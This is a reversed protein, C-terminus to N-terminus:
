IVGFFCCKKKKLKDNKVEENTDIQNENPQVKDNENKQHNKQKLNDVFRVFRDNIYIANQVNGTLLSKITFNGNRGNKTWEGEFIKGNEILKGIGFRRFNKVGGEYVAGGESTIVCPSLLKGKDWIGEYLTKSRFDFFKGKKDIMDDSFVGEFWNNNSLTLKGKGERKLNKIEGEYISGDIYSCSIVGFPEGISFEGEIRVKSGQTYYVGRGTIGEDTVQGQYCDGSSFFIRVSRSMGKEISPGEMIWSNSSISLEWNDPDNKVTILVVGGQLFSSSLKEFGFNESFQKEFLPLDKYEEQRKYGSKESFFVHMSLVTSLNDSLNSLDRNCIDFLVSFLPSDSTLSAPLELM